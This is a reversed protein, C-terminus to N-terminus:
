AVSAQGAIGEVRERRGKATLTLYLGGLIMPVSLTQGMTLGWSLNELGLDPQRVTEVLTRALGYVLLFTGALRGPHYRADTRYFMWRLLFFLVAGELVAEYLQSPHRPEPGGAPFVIGWPLTTARGWLEGNVFNALRGLFIGIPVVCAVYDMTRLFQVHAIRTMLWVAVIVGILGGHYSMGGEWLKLLEVPSGLMDPKYFAAYGLRGGIIIGFTIWAVLDDAHRKAMPAGPANLLRTMYYWGGLIGAIYALSYWRFQFFGIDLAIPSLGLATFRIGSGAVSGVIATFV